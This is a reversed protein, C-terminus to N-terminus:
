TAGWSLATALLVSQEVGEVKVIVNRGVVQKATDIM